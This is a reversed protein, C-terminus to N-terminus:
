LVQITFMKHGVSVLMDGSPHFDVIDAYYPLSPLPVSCETVSPSASMAQLPSLLLVSFALLALRTKSGLKKKNLNPNM